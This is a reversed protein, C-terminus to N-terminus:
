PGWVNHCITPCNDLLFLPYINICNDSSAFSLLDHRPYQSCRWLRVLISAAILDRRTRNADYIFRTCNATASLNRCTVCTVTAISAVARFLYTLQMRFPFGPVSGPGLGPGSRAASVKRRRRRQKGKTTSRREPQAKRHWKKREAESAFLDEVSSSSLGEEQEDDEEQEDSSSGSSSLKGAEVDRQRLVRYDVDSSSSGSGAGNMFRERFSKYIGASVSGIYGGHVGAAAAAKPSRRDYSNSGSSSRRRQQRAAVSTPQAGLLDLSAGSM